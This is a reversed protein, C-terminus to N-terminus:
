NVQAIADYVFSKRLKGVLHLEAIEDVDYWNADMIEVGDISLNGGTIVGGYIFFHRKDEPKFLDMIPAESSLRINFGTEEFAERIAAQQPTEGSDVHGAPLNWLGRVKPQGEQVLLFKDEDNRLVVAAIDVITGM